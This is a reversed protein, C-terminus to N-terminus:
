LMCSFFFYSKRYFLNDRYLLFLSSRFPTKSICPIELSPPHFYPRKWHSVKLDYCSFPHLRFLLHSFLPALGVSTKSFATTPHVPISIIEMRPFIRKWGSFNSICTFPLDSSCVDSSWDRKS